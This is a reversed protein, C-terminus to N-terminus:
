AGPTVRLVSCTNLTCTGRSVAMVRLGRSCKCYAHSGYKAAASRQKEDDLASAIKCNGAM